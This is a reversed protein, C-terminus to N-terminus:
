EEVIILVEEMNDCDSGLIEVEMSPCSEEVVVGNETEVIVIDKNKAELKKHLTKHHRLGRDSEYSKPCMPCKWESRTAAKEKKPHKKAQHSRRVQKSKFTKHCVPCESPEVKHSNMHSKLKFETRFKM